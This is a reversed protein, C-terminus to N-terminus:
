NTWPYVPPLGPCPTCRLVGNERTCFPQSKAHIRSCCDHMCIHWSEATEVPGSKGECMCDIDGGSISAIQKKNLEQM